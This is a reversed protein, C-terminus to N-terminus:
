RDAPPATSPPPRPVGARSAAFQARRWPVIGEIEASISFSLVTRVFVLLGLTAVSELTLDVAVTQVIDAAVLVELSLLLGRGFTRRAPEYADRGAIVNRLAGVATVLCAIVLIVVGVIEIVTAVDEAVTAFFGEPVLGDSAPVLWGHVGTM